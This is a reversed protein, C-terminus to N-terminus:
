PKLVGGRDDIAEVHKVCTAALQILEMRLRYASYDSVPRLTRECIERSVEKFEEGLQRLEPRPGHSSLNSLIRECIERSVEGFEEGHIALFEQDTLFSQDGFKADQRDREQAVERCVSLTHDKV